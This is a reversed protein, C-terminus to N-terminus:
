EKAEISAFCQNDIHPQIAFFNLCFWTKVDSAPGSMFAISTYYEIKFFPEVIKVIVELITFIFMLDASNM